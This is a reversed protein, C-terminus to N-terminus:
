STMSVSFGSKRLYLFSMPYDDKFDLFCLKRIKDKVPSFAYSGHQGSGRITYPKGHLIIVSILVSFISIALM